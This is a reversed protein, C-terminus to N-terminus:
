RLSAPVCRTKQDGKKENRRRERELALVDRELDKLEGGILNRAHVALDVVPRHNGLAIGDAHVLEHVGFLAMPHVVVRLIEVDLDPHPPHFSEVTQIEQVLPEVVVPVEGSRAKVVVDEFDDDVAIEDPPGSMSM